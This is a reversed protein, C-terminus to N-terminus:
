QIEKITRNYQRAKAMAANAEAVKGQKKLVFARAAFVQDLNPAGAELKTLDALADDYKGEAGYCIARKIMADVYQDSNLQTSDIAVTLAEAAPGYSKHSFADLGMQLTESTSKRDPASPVGSCGLLPAAFAIMILLTLARRVQM